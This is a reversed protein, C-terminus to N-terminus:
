SLWNEGDTVRDGWYVHVMHQDFAFSIFGALQHKYFFAKTSAPEVALNLAPEATFALFFVQM